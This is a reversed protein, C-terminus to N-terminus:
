KRIQLVVYLAGGSADGFPRVRVTFKQGVTATSPVRLNYIYLEDTPRMLGTTDASSVSETPVSVTADGTDTAADRDGALLQIAPRLGDLYVGDCGVSVKVPVVQGRQVLNISGPRLPSLYNADYVTVASSEYSASTGGDKDQAAATVSHSGCTAFSTTYANSGAAGFAGGDFSWGFGSTTDAGSPDSATGTFTVPAGSIVVAASSALATVTPAVNGVTVGYTAASGSGGDDDTAFGAVTSSGPPTGDDFVCTLTGGADTFSNSSVAGLAGCSPTVAAVGDAGPDSLTYPYTHTQTAHEDVASDGGTFTLTPAVNLESVALTKTVSHGHGDAVVVQLAVASPGDTFDIGVSPGDAPGSIAANGATVSWSYTLTDNDADAATVGYSGSTGEDVSDDGQIEGVVPAVNTPCDIEVRYFDTGATHNAGRARVVVQYSGNASGAPVTLTFNATFSQGNQNWVAPVQPTGVQAFAFSPPKTPADITLSEGAAFHSSGNRRILVKGTVPQGMTDCALGAPGYVVASGNEAVDGDAEQVSDALANPAFAALGTLLALTSVTTVGRTRRRSATPHSM